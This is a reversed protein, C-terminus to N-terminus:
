YNSSGAPVKSEDSTENKYIVKMAIRDDGILKDNVETVEVKGTEPEKSCVTNENMLNDEEVPLENENITSDMIM